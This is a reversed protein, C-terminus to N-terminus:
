SCMTMNLKLNLNQTLMNIFYSLNCITAIDTFNNKVIRAAKIHIHCLGDPLKSCHVM